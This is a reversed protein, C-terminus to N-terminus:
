ALCRASFLKLCFSRARSPRFSIVSYPAYARPKNRLAHGFRHESLGCGYLPATDFLRIGRAYATELTAQAREEPIREYLDGLPAGGMGLVGIKLATLGLQRPPFRSMMADSSQNRVM